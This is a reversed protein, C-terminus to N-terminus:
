GPDDRGSVVVVGNRVIIAFAPVNGEVSCGGDGSTSEISPRPGAQRPSEREKM